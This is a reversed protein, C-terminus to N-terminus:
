ASDIELEELLPSREIGRRDRTEYYNEAAQKRLLTRDQSRHYCVLSADLNLATELGLPTPGWLWGIRRGVKRSVAWHTPGYKLSPHYRYVLPCRTTWEHDLAVTQAVARLTEDQLMDKGELVTMTAVNLKTNELDWRISENNVKMPHMDADMVVVWDEDPTAIAGALKLTLNRKEIENGWFIDNPQHLVLEMDVAEAALRIADVQEPLSRPRAGPFLAYGGDVAVVADCFQGMGAVVTSLWSASEDFFSLLGIIKM